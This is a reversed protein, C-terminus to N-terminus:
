IGGLIGSFILTVGAFICLIYMASHILYLVRDDDYRLNDWESLAGIILIIIGAIVVEIQM